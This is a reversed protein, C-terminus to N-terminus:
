EGFCVLVCQVLPVSFDHGPDCLQSTFNNPSHPLASIFFNLQSCLGGDVEAKGSMIRPSMSFMAEGQM